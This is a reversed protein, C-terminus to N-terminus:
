LQEVKFGKKKMKQLIGDPGPLHMAGVVVFEIEPTEMYKELQPMWNNNREFLLTQYIEPFSHKLEENLEIMLKTEGNKWSHVIEDFEEKNKEADLLNYLVLDDGDINTMQKLIHLYDEFTELYLTLKGEEKAKKFLKIDVGDETIENLKMVKYTLEKVAFFPKLKNKEDLKIGYEICTSDLKNYVENSLVTALTSDNQFKMTEVVYKVNEPKNVESVDTELVLIQANALAKFFVNPLPYDQRRLKHISGGIYMQSGNGEIKWVSSQSFASLAFFPILITIFTLRNM